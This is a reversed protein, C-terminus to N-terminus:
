TCVVNLIKCKPTLNQLHNQGLYPAAFYMAEQLIKATFLLGSSFNEKSIITKEHFCGTISSCIPGPPEPESLEFIQEMLMGRVTALKKLFHKTAYFSALYLHSKNFITCYVPVGALWTKARAPNANLQAGPVIPNKCYKGALYQYLGFFTKYSRPAGPM